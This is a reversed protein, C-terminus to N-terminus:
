SVEGREQSEGLIETNDKMVGQPSLVEAIQPSQLSLITIANFFGSSTAPAAHGAMTM